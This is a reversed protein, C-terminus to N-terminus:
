LLAEVMEQPIEKIRPFHHLEQLTLAGARQTKMIQKTEKDRTSTLPKYFDLPKDLGIAQGVIWCAMSWSAHTHTDRTPRYCPLRVQVWHTLEHVVFLAMAIQTVKAFHMHGVILNEKPSYHGPNRNYGNILYPMVILMPIEPRLPILAPELQVAKKWIREALTKVHPQFPHSYKTTKLM